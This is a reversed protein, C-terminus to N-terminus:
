AITVGINSIVWWHGNRAALTVGNGKAAAFTATGSSGKANFGDTGSTIVHAFATETVIVLEKGDDGGASPAGAVPAAITLAAISGKTIFISGSKLAIAGDVSAVNYNFVIDGGGGPAGNSGDILGGAAVNLVDGGQPKYVKSGDFPM